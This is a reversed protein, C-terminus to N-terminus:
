HGHNAELIRVVESIEEVVEPSFECAIYERVTDEASRNSNWYFQLLVAKNLDEYIGECYPFGGSVIGSCQDWLRQFRQPLPNAGWGGWPGMGWMSIEPFNLVPVGGPAGHERVFEPFDNHSDVMLYDVWDPKEAFAKAFVEWENPYQYGFCWTSLVVKVKPFYEGVLRAVPEAAKLFGNGGWPECQECLCGGQDYPWIWFYELDIKAFAQLMERRWKLILELGGPKNPCLEVFYCGTFSAPVARLEEPSNAYAENALVGLSGGIGVRNAAQLIARLREIMAQAAPDDIGTYHHMDFWVNLANCGWLALEEVYGEVEEIPADHFFNHFHTAFYIGRVPKEPVSTGRWSSPQFEGDDFISTRLFKGIGYLLGREDNGVLCIADREGEQIRFGEVGIGPAIDLVIQPPGESALEVGAREKLARRLIEIAKDVLPTRRTSCVIGITQIM